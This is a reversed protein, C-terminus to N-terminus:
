DESFVKVIKRHYLIRFSYNIREFSYQLSIKSKYHRSENLTCSKHRDAHDETQRQHEETRNDLAAQHPNRKSLKSTFINHKTFRTIITKIVGPVNRVM